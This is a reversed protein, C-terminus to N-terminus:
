LDQYRCRTSRETMVKFSQSNCRIARSTVIWCRIPRSTQLATRECRNIILDVAKMVRAIREESTRSSVSDADGDTEGQGLNFAAWRRSQSDRSPLRAMAELM